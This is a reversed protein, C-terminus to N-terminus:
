HQIIIIIIIIKCAANYFSTYIILMRLFSFTEVNILETTLGNMTQISKPFTGLPLGEQAHIM